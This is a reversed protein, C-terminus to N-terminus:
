SRDWGERVLECHPLPFLITGGAELYWRERALVSPRFQWIPCLWLGAPLSKAEDEGVIPIGTITLRGHKEPSRDIAQRVDRPGINLVQLLINGKTSAGYVDIGTGHDRNMALTTFIHQKAAWVRDRFTDFARFDGARITPTDLGVEADRLLYYQVSPEPRVGPQAPRLWVRLSGGNIPTEEVRQMRLGAQEVTHLLSWLSYYELHEHCINDFAASQIQQRLDQFQVVAVGHPSLLARLSHFFARPDELDYCMAIATVIECRGQYGDLLATPFYQPIVTHAVQSLRETLNLAPEVGVREATCGLTEYTRLLTGDNAGIDVVVKAAPALELARRAIGQLEQVMMENVGSKYWYNRYLWDPPVTRDLQLLGCEVCVMLILPVKHIQEIEWAHLPFANLRLSGLNLVERLSGSCARCTGRQYVSPHPMATM